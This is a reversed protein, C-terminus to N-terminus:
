TDLTGLVWFPANINHIRSLTVEEAATELERRINVVRSSTMPYINAANNATIEWNDMGIGDPTGIVM